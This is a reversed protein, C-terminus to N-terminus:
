FENSIIGILLYKQLFDYCGYVVEKESLECKANGNNCLILRHEKTGSIKRSREGIKEVM